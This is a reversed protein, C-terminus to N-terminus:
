EVPLGELKMIKLANTTPCPGSRLRYDFVMRGDEVEERFHYNHVLPIEEALKILELDHTSILGTGHHGALARIYARSGLLRERNNTGRFIEDILFFLPAPHPEKLAQLLAKLRRVEAYFYSIGDNVSDSVNLCTFLRFPLMECRSANIPAGANALSLTVGLTRLFTSKGSMNSGTIIAMDGMTHLSFDNCRKQEDPLLPHGLHEALFIPQSAETKDQFTPFTYEPNLDAFTALANLAELEYWTDLWTPLLGRLRDKFQGLRYAFFVDWPMLGNLLVLLVESKQSSAAAAIWTIRRLQASPRNAADLFPACLADLHHHPGYRYSELYTAVARFAKLTKELHYAEEFLHAVHRYKFLYLSVYAMFSVAWLAPLPTLLYALFLVLNLVALCGLLILLPKLSSSASHQNLWQELREGDWSTDPNGVALAGHLTLRDRFTSLTALEKVLAQRQQTTQLDPFTQLLWSRLRKSGGLSISTDLLHHLSREGTLNLDNEFPHEPDPLPTSPQPLYEWDLTMRAVHTAKIHRWIKHQRVSADVRRHYHAIIFFVLTFLSITAWGWATSLTQFALFTLLAGLLVLGLRTWAYRRSIQDLARIRQKMRDLHRRLATLHAQKAPHM